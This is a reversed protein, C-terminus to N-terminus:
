EDDRLEGPLSILNERGIRLKDLQGNEAMESLLQSVKANSWDTEDVIAAQKMRGGQQHLLRLVREEDSLLPGPAARDDSAPESDTQDTTAAGRGAGSDGDGAPTPAGAGRRRRELLGVLIVVLVLLGGIGIVPTIGLGPTDPTDTTTVPGQRVLTASPEGPQFRAPGHIDFTRNELPRSASQVSYDAPFEIVLRQNEGLRPLWTGSPTTFVDGLALREGSARAFQTWTFTVVLTGRDRNARRRVSSINMRRDTAASARVAAARFPEITLTDSEGSEFDNALRDFAMSENETELEFRMTVAWRANGNPQLDIRLTTAPVDTQNGSTHTATAPVTGVIVVGVAIAGLLAILLSRQATSSRM